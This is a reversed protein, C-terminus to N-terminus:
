QPLKPDKLTMSKSVVLCSMVVKTTGPLMGKIGDHAPKRSRLFDLSPDDSDVNLASFKKQQKDM